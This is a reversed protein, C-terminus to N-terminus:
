QASGPSAWELGGELSGNLSLRERAQEAAHFAAERGALASRSRAIGAAVTNWERHIADHAALAAAARSGV